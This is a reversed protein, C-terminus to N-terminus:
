GVPYVGKTQQYLGKTAGFTGGPAGIDEGLLIVREDRAMERDGGM